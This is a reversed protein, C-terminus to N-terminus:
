IEFEIEYPHIETNYLSVSVEIVQDDDNYSTRVRKMVHTEETELLHKEEAGLISVSFQDEFHDVLYDNEALIRYMSAKEIKDKMAKTVNGPLYHNFIIYPVQNILYMRTVKTARNGFFTYFKHDSDLTVKEIQVIRKELSLGKKELISSFSDGKSLKNFLRNSIVTTGKGSKKEVYGQLALVEIAKRVTIKSVEFLNEFDNETPLMTGVPYVNNQIDNKIQEAIDVYLVSKRKM